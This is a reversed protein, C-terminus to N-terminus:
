EVFYSLVNLSVLLFRLSVRGVVGVGGEVGDNLLRERGVHVVSGQV